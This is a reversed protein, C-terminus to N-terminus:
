KKPDISGTPRLLGAFSEKMIGEIENGPLLTAQLGIQDRLEAHYNKDASIYFERSLQVSAINIEQVTAKPAGQRHGLLLRNSAIPLYIANLEPDHRLIHMLEGTESGAVVGVDGLVLPEDHCEVVTWDLRMLQEVRSEPPLNKSLLKNQSDKFAKPETLSPIHKDFEERASGILTGLHEKMKPVLSALVEERRDPPLLNLAFDLKGASIENMAGDFAHQAIVAQNEPSTLAQGFGDLFSEMAEAVGSRVNATRIQTSAVFECLLRKQDLGTGERLRRVLKAFGDEMESLRREIDSDNPNGYFDRTKAIGKVNTETMGGNKRYLWTFVEKKNSRSAFGKLLFQPLHHQGRTISTKENM